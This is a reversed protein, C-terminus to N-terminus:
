QLDIFHKSVIPFAVRESVKQQHSRSMQIRPGLILQLGTYRSIIAHALNPLWLNLQEKKDYLFVFIRIGDLCLHGTNSYGCEVGDVDIFM